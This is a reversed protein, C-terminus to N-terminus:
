QKTWFRKNTRAVGWTQYWFTRQHSIAMCCMILYCLCCPILSCLYYIIM